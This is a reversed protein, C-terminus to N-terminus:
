DDAMKELANKLLEEPTTNLAAAIKVLTEMQPAHEGQEIKHVRQRTCELRKALAVQSMPVRERAERIAEGWATAMTM